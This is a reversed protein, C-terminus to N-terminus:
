QGTNIVFDFTATTQGGSQQVNQMVMSDDFIGDRANSAEGPVYLQTTLIPGNPAQVKVHIHPTRGPYEGPIVTTLTYRGNADTYQHGRLTYGSNDYTGNADAQWFDIWANAVPRCNTDYVYGTLVLMTGSMGDKYLTASEPSGAKYYPGETQSQTAVGSCTTSPAAAIETTPTVAAAAPTTAAAEAIEITATPEAAAAETATPEVAAETATPEAQTVAETATAQAEVVATTATPEAAATTVTAVAALTPTVVGSPAPAANLDCAALLVAASLAIIALSRRPSLARRL